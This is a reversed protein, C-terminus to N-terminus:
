GTRQNRKGWAAIFEVMLPEGCDPYTHVGESSGPGRQAEQYGEAEGAVWLTTM